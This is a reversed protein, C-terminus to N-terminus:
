ALHHDSTCLRLVIGLQSRAFVRSDNLLQSELGLESIEFDLVNHARAIHPERNTKFTEGVGVTVETRYTNIM